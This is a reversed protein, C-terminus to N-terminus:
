ALDFGDVSAFLHELVVPERDAVVSLARGSEAQLAAAIAAEAVQAPALLRENAEAADATLGVLPTAVGGPCIADITIGISALSPAIARVWGVVGHKSVTYTPDPVWPVLGAVSATAVIAGGDSMVDAAAATGFVVGDVNVAVVKRYRETLAAIQDIPQSQLAPDRGTVGANLFALDLGGFEAVAAGMLAANDAESTVDAVRTACGTRDAIGALGVQNVDAALVNAGGAVLQNVLAEGIGSAAGTVVATKGDLAGM